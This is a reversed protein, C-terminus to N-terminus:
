SVVGGLIFRWDKIGTSWRGYGSRKLQKTEFDRIMEFEIAVRNWWVMAEKMMAKNVIAWNNTDSFRHWTMVEATGQEPNINGFDSDLGYPTKTIELARPELDLSSLLGDAAEDITDGQDNRFRRFQIRAARYSTPSLASTTINSFGSATSVGPTRTTHSASVLAVGESRVYFFTDNSNM